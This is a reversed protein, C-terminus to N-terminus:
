ISDQLTFRDFSLENVRNWQYIKNRFTMWQDYVQKFTADQEAKEELLEFTANEFAKLISPSYERLQTGGKILRQLAEGNAADVRALMTMSIQTTASKFIQQYAKPLREWQTRNVLAQYITGPEWWGPYYYFQAVQHLGLKEDDYPNQWEAADLEGKALADYIQDGGLSQVDAGLRSMVQGGFGPIRIKLRNLDAVTNIEKRFWGGMQVGPSGAPFCITGLDAHLKQLIELGGGYYFWAYQQYATLGFPLAAGFALAPNKDLYYHSATHGCEVTGAQVADLVELAPVIEGPEYPTIIFQGATMEGIRQCLTEVSGFIIDLTKPWSTAMRWQIVPQASTPQQARSPRHTTIASVGTASIVARKIWTRRKM